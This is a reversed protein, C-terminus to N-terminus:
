FRQAVERTRRTGPQASEQRNNNSGGSVAAVTKKVPTGGQPSTITLKAADAAEVLLDELTAFKQSTNKDMVINGAADLVKPKEGTIDLTHREFFDNIFGKKTFDNVDERFKVRSRAADIFVSRKGTEERKRSTADLAKYDNEWKTASSGFADREKILDDREKTLAALAADNNGTGGSAKLEDREKTIAVLRAAVGDTLKPILDLPDSEDVNGIDLGLAKAGSKLRQRAINNIKGFVKDKVGQDEPALERRLFTADFAVKMAKEDEIKEPDLGLYSAIAEAKIAM